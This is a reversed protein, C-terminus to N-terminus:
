NDKKKKHHNKFRSPNSALVEHLGQRNLNHTRLLKNLEHLNLDTYLKASNSKTM